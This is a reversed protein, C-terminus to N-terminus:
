HEILFVSETPDFLPLVVIELRRGLILLLVERGHTSEVFAKATTHCDRLQEAFDAAASGGGV